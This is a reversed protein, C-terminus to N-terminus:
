EFGLRAPVVDEGAEVLQGLDAVGARADDDHAPDVIHHEVTLQNPTSDAFIQDSRDARDVDNARDAAQIRRSRIGLREAADDRYDTGLTADAGRGNGMVQGPGDCAIETQISDNGIQIEGEARSTQIVVLVGRLTNRVCNERGLTDVGIENVPQQRLAGIM